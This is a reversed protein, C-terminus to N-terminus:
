HSPRHETVVKLTRLSGQFHATTSFKVFFAPNKTKILLALIDDCCVEFYLVDCHSIAWKFRMDSM